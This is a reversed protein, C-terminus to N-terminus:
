ARRLQDFWPAKSAHITAVDEAESGSDSDWGSTTKTVPTARLSRHADSFLAETLRAEATEEGGGDLQLELKVPTFSTFQGLDLLHAPIM